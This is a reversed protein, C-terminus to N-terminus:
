LLGGDGPVEEVAASYRLEIELEASQGQSALERIRRTRWSEGRTLLSKDIRRTLRHVFWVLPLAIAVFGGTLLWVFSEPGDILHPMALLIALFVVPPFVLVSLAIAIGHRATEALLFRAMRRLLASMEVVLVQPIQFKSGERYSSQDM